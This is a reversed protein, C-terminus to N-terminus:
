YINNSYKNNKNHCYCYIIKPSIGKDQDTPIEMGCIDIIKIKDENKNEKENNSNYDLSNLINNGIEEM